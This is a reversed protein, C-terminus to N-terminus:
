PTHFLAGGRGAPLSWKNPPRERFRVGQFVFYPAEFGLGRRGMTRGCEDLFHALRIVVRLSPEKTEGSLIGSLVGSWIRSKKAGFGM